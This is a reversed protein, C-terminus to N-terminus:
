AARGRRRPASSTRAIPSGTPPAATAGVSREAALVGHVPGRRRRRAAARRGPRAVQRVRALGRGDERLAGAVLRRRRRRRVAARRRSREVLHSLHAGIGLNADNRLVMVRHPGAYGAVAARMAAHTGDSSADDSVLIELPEYTQALAGAIAAGVSAAQNYAILMMTVLPRAAADDAMAANSAGASSRRRAQRPLHLHLFKRVRWGLPLESAARVPRQWREGSGRATWCPPELYHERAHVPALAAPSPTAMAPMSRTARRVARDRRARSREAHAGLRRPPPRRRHAAMEVIGGRRYRVLPEPVTLPAAPSRRRAAGDGPGRVLPRRHVPRVAGDTPAHLRADRRGHVAPARVLRRADARRPRRDRGSGGCPRRVGHRRLPQRDPRRPPGLTGRPSSGSSGSRCRSITAPRPSSCSAATERRHAPQLARRHRPEGRQPARAPPAPRPVRRRGRRPARVHQRELRRRLVRDRAAARDARARERGRQPDDSGPRLRASPHEVRAAQM